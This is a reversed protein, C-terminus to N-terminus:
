ASYSQEFKKYEKTSYDFAKKYDTNYKTFEAKLFKYYENYFFNRAFDFYWAKKMKPMYEYKSMFYDMKTTMYKYWNLAEAKYIFNGFFIQKDDFYIGAEFNNGNANYYCTFFESNYFEYKKSKDFSMKKYEAVM